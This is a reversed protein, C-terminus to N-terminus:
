PQLELARWESGIRQYLIRRHVRGPDFRLFEVRRPAVVYGGWHPPRPVVGSGFQRHVSALREAGTAGGAFPASPDFAWSALQADRTRGQFYRDAEEASIRTASGLVRVQRGVHDWWFTLSVNPNTDIQRAKPSAYSTCFVLGDPRIAKLDVVRAHPMGEADVTSVCVAGPHSASSGERALRHWERLLDIPDDVNDASLIRV